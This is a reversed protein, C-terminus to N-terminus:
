VCDVSVPRQGGLEGEDAAVFACADDDGFAIEDVVDVDAVVRPYFPEVARAEGAVEALRGVLRQAGLGKERAVGDVARELLVADGFSRV